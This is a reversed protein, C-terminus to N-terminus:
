INLSLTTPTVMGRRIFEILLDLKKYLTELDRDNHIIVNPNIRSAQTESKHTQVSPPQAQTPVVAKGSRVIRVVIGGYGKITNSEDEFRVDSVALNVNAHEQKFKEFLRVWMTLGNFKMQPLVKPVYDRCVESGFVQLFQRGTIGWFENVELKEEQTGFVQRPEFGLCVAVEKLPQAFMYETFGRESSLYDVVTSKGCGIEGNVGILLNSENEIMYVDTDPSDIFPSDIFFASKSRMGLRVQELVAFVVGINLSISQGTACHAISHLGNTYNFGARKELPFSPSWKLEYWINQTKELHCIHQANQPAFTADCICEFFSDGLNDLGERIVSEKTEGICVQTFPEQIELIAQTVTNNSEM